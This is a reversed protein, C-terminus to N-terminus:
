VKGLTHRLASELDDFVFDFGNTILKGPTSKIDSLITYRSMEGLLIKIMKPPIRINLKTKWIKELIKMFQTFQVCNRSVANVPGSINDNCM